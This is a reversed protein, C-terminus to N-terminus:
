VRRHSVAPCLATGAGPHGSAGPTAGHGPHSGRCRRGPDAQVGAGDRGLGLATFTILAEDGATRQGRRGQSDAAVLLLPKIARRLKYTRSNRRRGWFLRKSEKTRRRRAEEWATNKLTNKGGMATMMIMSRLLNLGM